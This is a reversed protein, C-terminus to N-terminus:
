EEGEDAVDDYQADGEDPDGDHDESAVVESAVLNTVAEEQLYWPTVDHHIGHYNTKNVNAQEEYLLAAVVGLALDAAPVEAYRALCRRWTLYDPPEIPLGALAPREAWVRKLVEHRVGGLAYVAIVAMERQVCETLGAMAAAIRDMRTESKTWIAKNKSKTDAVRLRRWCKVDTCVAVQKQDGMLAQIRQECSEGKCGPPADQYALNEYSGYVLDGLKVLKAGATKAAEFAAQTREEDARKHEAIKQDYCDPKLCVTFQGWSGGKRSAGHPCRALCEKAMEGYEYGIHRTLKADFLQQDVEHHLGGELEKSTLGKVVAVEAAREAVKPFAEYSALAVGHAATLAGSEVYAQASEPLKLLRLRNSVWAESKGVAEAVARQRMGTDILRRYGRAEEIPDLDQRQTNEILMMRLATTDDVDALIRAPITELGALQAARWRREGAILQYPHEPDDRPGRVVVPEIIGHERVTAVLEDLSEQDFRKRPNLANAAILGVAMEMYVGGDKRASVYSETM